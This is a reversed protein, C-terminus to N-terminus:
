SVLRVDSIAYFLCLLYDKKYYGSWSFTSWRIQLSSKGPNLILGEARQIEIAIWATSFEVNLKFLYKSNSRNNPKGLSATTMVHFAFCLYLTDSALFTKDHLIYQDPNTEM